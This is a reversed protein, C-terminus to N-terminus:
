LAQCHIYSHRDCKLQTSDLWNKTTIKGLM